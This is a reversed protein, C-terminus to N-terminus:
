LFLFNTLDYGDNYESASKHALLIITLCNLLYKNDYGIVKELFLGTLHNLHCINLDSLSSSIGDQSTRDQIVCDQIQSISSIVVNTGFM